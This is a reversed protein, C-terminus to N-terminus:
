LTGIQRKNEKAWDTLPAYDYQSDIWELGAFSVMRAELSKQAEQRTEILRKWYEIMHLKKEDRRNEAITDLAVDMIGERQEMLEKRRQRAEEGAEPQYSVCRMMRHTNNHTHEQAKRDKDPETDRQKM